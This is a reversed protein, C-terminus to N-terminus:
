RKEGKGDTKEEEIMVKLKNRGRSLLTGVSSVKKNLLEAIEKLSYGECYHLYMPIRYKRELKLVMQIVESEEPISDEIEEPVPIWSKYWSAKLLDKCKNVTCRVLWNRRYNESDFKINKTLYVLFVDQVVDEADHMSKLYTFAIRLLMKSYLFVAEKIEDFDEEQKGM